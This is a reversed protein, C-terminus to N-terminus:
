LGCWGRKPGEETQAGTINYVGCLKLDRGQKTSFSTKNLREDNLCLRTPFFFHKSRWQHRHSTRGVTNPTQVRYSASRGSHVCLTRIIGIEFTAGDKVCRTDKRAGALEHCNIHWERRSLETIIRKQTGACHHLCTELDLDNYQTNFSIFRACLLEQLLDRCTHRRRTRSCRWVM